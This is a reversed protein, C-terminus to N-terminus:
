PGPAALLPEIVRRLDEPKYVGTKVEVLRGTRDFIATFPLAGLRNGLREALAVGTAEAILLPYAVPTSAIFSKVSKVDDIALGVFQLGQAGLKQQLMSFAPMEKLCPPCWTAWFNLVMVKGHWEDLRHPTSELDPFSTSLEALSPVNDAQEGFWRQVLMGGALAAVAVLAYLLPRM